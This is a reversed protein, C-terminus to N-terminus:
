KRLDRWKRLYGYARRLFQIFLLSCGLPIVPYLIFSPPEMATPQRAGQHMLNVTVVVGFWAVVLCVLAGIISTIVNLMARPRPRFLNEVVDIAVHGEKKLVWAAPLFAAFAMSYETVEFAWRISTAFAYRLVVETSVLLMVFAIIVGGVVALYKIIGDFIAPVKALQQKTDVVEPVRYSNGPHM